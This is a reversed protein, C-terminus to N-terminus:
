HTVTPCGEVVRVSLSNGNELSACTAGELTLRRGSLSWGDPGDRPILTGGVYVNVDGAQQAAHKLIFTCSATIQAAIQAFAAGLANTDATDVRYYLPESPRATGGATALQDLVAAYPASGPIGLVFTEVGAARLDSVAQATRAGDLCGLGGTGTAPDCCNPPGGAPCGQAGDMNSTCQDASCALAADCNPGGDTALIAFTAQPFASLEPLLAEITAATPTGGVPTISTAAMFTKATAGQSDGLQVPMVEVGTTCENTLPAPFIAAGFRARPGLQTILQAVVAQVNTWKSQEQMSGSADLVFYLNPANVDLPIETGKCTAADSGPPLGADTDAVPVTLGTRAGCAVIGAAVLAVTWVGQSVRTM